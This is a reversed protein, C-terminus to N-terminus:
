AGTSDFIRANFMLLRARRAKTVTSIFLMQAESVSQMMAMLPERERYQSSPLALASFEKQSSFAADYLATCITDVLENIHRIASTSTIAVASHFGVFARLTNAPGHEEHLRCAAVKKKMM